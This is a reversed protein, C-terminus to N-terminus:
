ELAYAEVLAVGTTGGSGRVVATYDGPQLRALIAADRDDGPALGTAEIQAQQNSKWNDNSAILTGNTDHLELTPDALANAVGALTLDPGIARFLVSQAALGTVIVGGILVNDSAGVFGRASINAVTSTPPTSLDYVEALGIGTTNNAGRVIVTYFDPALTRALAAEHPDSPALGAAQVQSANVDTAWDDNSAILAGNKNHLELVPNQLRGPVPTGNVQLSPGLGRLVVRKSASGHIIFGAILVNDGTGISARGSINALRPPNFLGFAGLGGSSAGVYVKGNAVTPVFFKNGSGFNDRGNPAQDSNYLEHTLDAADYAHLVARETGREAAWVIGNASGNASVSPTTGPYGFTIASTSDATTNLRANTFTFARLNDNWAGFYLRGNFFAPASFESGGLGPGGTSPPVDQYLNANSDPNFKGMRDRDALYIHRDKGAGVALHRTNGNSDTMDPLLLPGGSGLDYDYQPSSEQVTNFMTWYDAVQLSNNATSLKVFCNGFDGQNPFGNADLTTDFTGNGLMAYFFGDSDVAPAAGSQWIAGQHGNPTLNMVRVQALTTEDYGIVWGTYPRADCHSTWTTYIVGNHLVLGAREKYQKPDFVVNGNVSNDGTGPYTAVIDKPGGFEEAGTVLDLAHLRQFYNGAANMSMAVVYITGHPGSRRDIVPTDTIGLQPTLDNCGQTGGPTEGALLLSKHWLLTGDNADFAYVSDRETAAYLVDYVSRGPIELGAVILPQAYLQGDVNAAFLKGFDAANVNNPALTVEHLNQGTRALDNHSTLVDVAAFGEGAAFLLAAAVLKVNLVRRSNEFHFM